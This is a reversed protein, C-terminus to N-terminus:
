RPAESTDSETDGPEDEEEAEALAAAIELGSIYASCAHHDLLQPSLAEHLHLVASRSSPPVRKAGGDRLLLGETDAPHTYRQMTKMVELNRRMLPGGSAALLSAMAVPMPSGLLRPVVDCDNVVLLHRVRPQRVRPQRVRPQRLQAEEDGRRRTERGEQRGESRAWCGDAKHDAFPEASTHDSLTHDSLTHDSLTHDSLTHDSLTTPPAGIGVVTVDGRYAAPLLRATILTFALSGGLSHGFVYLYRCGDNVARRLQDHLATDGRVGNLFGGHFHGVRGGGLEHQAPEVCLDRILDTASWTGRFVLYLADGHAFVARRREARASQPGDAPHDVWSPLAGRALFWQPHVDSGKTEHPGQRQFHLLKLGGPVDSLAPSRLQAELSHQSDVYAVASLRAALLAILLDVRLARKLRRQQAQRDAYGVVSNGLMEGLASSVSGFLTRLGGM